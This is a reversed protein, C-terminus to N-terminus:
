AASRLCSTRTRIAISDPRLASRAPSEVPGEPRIPPEEMAELVVATKPGTLGDYGFEGSPGIGGHCPIRLHISYGQGSHYLGGFAADNCFPM